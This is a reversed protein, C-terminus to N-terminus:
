REWNDVIAQLTDMDAGPTVELYEFPPTDSHRVESRIGHAELHLRLEEARPEPLHIVTRGDLLFVNVDNVRFASM